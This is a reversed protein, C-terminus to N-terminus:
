REGTLWMFEKKFNNNNEQKKKLENTTWRQEAKKSDQKIDM